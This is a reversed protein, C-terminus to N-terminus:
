LAGEVGIPIMSVDHICVRGIAKYFAIVMATCVSLSSICMLKHM